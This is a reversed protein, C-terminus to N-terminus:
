KLGEACFDEIYQEYNAVPFTLTQWHYRVSQKNCGIELFINTDTARQATRQNKCFKTLVLIILIFVIFSLLVDASIFNEVHEIIETYSILQTDNKPLARQPYILPNPEIRRAVYRSRDLGYRLRDLDASVRTPIVAM